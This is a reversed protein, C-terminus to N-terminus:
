LEFPEPGTEEVTVSERDADSLHSQWDVHEADAWLSELDYLERTEPTFVHLVVDGFDHLIWQHGEHGETGYRSSGSTKMLKDAHEALSIMQRRNTGTSIVFYDFIPTIKTLDLVHIDQGRYQDCLHAIRCANKLSEARQESLPSEESEIVGGASNYVTQLSM